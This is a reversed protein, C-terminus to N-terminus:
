EGQGLNKLHSPREGYLKTIEDGDANRTLYVNIEAPERTGPLAGGKGTVGGNSTPLGAALRGLTDAAEIM